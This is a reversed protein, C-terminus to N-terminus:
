RQVLGKVLEAFAYLLAAFAPTLLMVNRRAKAQMSVLRVDADDAEQARARLRELEARRLNKVETTEQWQDVRDRVYRFEDILETRVDGILRVLDGDRKKLRQVEADLAFM